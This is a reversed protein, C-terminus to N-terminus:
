GLAALLEAANGVLHELPRDPSHPLRTTVPVSSLGLAALVRDATAQWTLPSDLDDEYSLRLHEVGLLDSREKVNREARLRLAPLLLAPDVDYVPRPRSALEHRLLDGRQVHVVLWGRHAALHLWSAAHQGDLQSPDLRVGVSRGRHARRLRDLGSRAGPVLEGRLVEVSPHCALLSALLVTGARPQGLLLFPRPPM